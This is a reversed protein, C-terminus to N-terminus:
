SQHSLVMTQVGTLLAKTDGDVKDLEETIMESGLALVSTTGGAYLNGNLPKNTIVESLGCTASPGYITIVNDDKDMLVLRGSKVVFIENMESDMQALLERNFLHKIEM